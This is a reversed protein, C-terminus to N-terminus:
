FKTLKNDCYTGFTTAWVPNFVGYVGIQNNPYAAALSEVLNQLYQCNPEQARTPFLSISVYLSTFLTADVKAKVQQVLESVSIKTDPEIYFNSPMQQSKANQLNQILYENTFFDQYFSCGLEKFCRFDAVQGGSLSFGQYAVALEVVLMSVILLKIM